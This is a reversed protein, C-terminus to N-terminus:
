WECLSRNGRQFIELSHDFEAVDWGGAFRYLGDMNDSKHARPVGQHKMSSETTLDNQLFQFASFSTTTLVEWLLATHGGAGPFPSYFESIVLSLEGWFLTTLHFHIRHKFVCVCVGTANIM